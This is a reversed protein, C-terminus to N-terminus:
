ELRATALHCRVHRTGLSFTSETRGEGTSRAIQVVHERVVRRAMADDDQASLAHHRRPIPTSRRIDASAVLISVSGIAGAGATSPPGASADFAAPSVTMTM